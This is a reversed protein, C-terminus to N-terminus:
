GAMTDWRFVEVSCFGSTLMGGNLEITSSIAHRRNPIYSVGPMALTDHLLRAEAKRNRQDRRLIWTASSEGVRAELEQLIWGRHTMEMEAYKETKVAVIAIWENSIRHDEMGANVRIRMLEAVGRRRDIDNKRFSHESAHNASKHKLLKSLRRRASNSMHSGVVKITDSLLKRELDCRRREKSRPASPAM